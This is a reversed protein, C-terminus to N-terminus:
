SIKIFNKSISPVIPCHSLLKNGFIGPRSRVFNNLENVVCENSIFIFFFVNVALSVRTCSNDSLFMIM